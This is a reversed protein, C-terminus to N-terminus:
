GRTSAPRGGRWKLVRYTLLFTLIGAYIKPELQEGRIMMFYHFIGLVGILYILRHLKKWRRGLRKMMKNTSTFALPLLLVFNVMGVTIFNRKLIDDGIEGWNFFHDLVVYSSLHMSVMAFVYLGVMRRFHIALKFKFIDSFPTIALALLLYRLAWDGLYRNTYEIPNATLRLTDGGIVQWWGWALWLLPLSLAVFLLPKLRQAQRAPSLALFDIL